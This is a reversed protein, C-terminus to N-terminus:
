NEPLLDHHTPPCSCFTLLEKPKSSSESRMRRGGTRELGMSCWVVEQGKERAHPGALAGRLGRSSRRRRPAGEVAMWEGMAGELTLAAILTTNEGRNRPVKGRLGEKRESGQSEPAEHLHELGIRGRVGAASCRFPLGVMAL